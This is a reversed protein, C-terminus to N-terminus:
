PVCGYWAQKSAYYAIGAPARYLLESGYLETEAGDHWDLQSRVCHLLIWTWAVHVLSVVRCVDVRHMCEITAATTTTMCMPFRVQPDCTFASEANRYVYM